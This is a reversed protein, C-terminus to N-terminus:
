GPVQICTALQFFLYELVREQPSLTASTDTQVHYSTFVVRGCFDNAPGPYDAQVTLPHHHPGTPGEHWSVDGSVWVHGSSAGGTGTMLEADPLADVAGWPDKFDRLAVTSQGATVAGVQQLWALMGPDDVTGPLTATSALGVGIDAAEGRAPHGSAFTIGAPYVRQIVPYALDSAYLRGGRALWAQLNAVRPATLLTSPTFNGLVGCPTVLIQYRALTDPADLLAVLDMGHGGNTGGHDPDVTDYGTIGIADLVHTFRDNVDISRSGTPATRYGAVAIRPVTDDGSSAGPLHTRAAPLAVNGCPAVTVGREVHRFGGSEFVVTFSGGADVVAGRLSFSGDTGSLVWVSAAPPDACHQCVVADAAPAFVQGAPAIWVRVGPLPDHGNPALAIGTISGGVGGACAGTGTGRPVDFSPRDGFSSTGADSVSADSVVTYRDPAPSACGASLVLFALFSPRVIPVPESRPAPPNFSSRPTM